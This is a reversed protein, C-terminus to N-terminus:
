GAHDRASPQYRALASDKPANASDGKAALGTTLYAWGSNFNADFRLKTSRAAVSDLIPAAALLSDHALLATGRNYAAVDADGRGCAALTAAAALAVVRAGARARPSCRTSFFAVSRPSCSCISVAAVSGARDLGRASRDQISRHRPPHDRRRTPRMPRSSYARRRSGGRRASDRSRVEDRSGRRERRAEADRAGNVVIPITSGATTGFGVTVLQIGAAKARTAEAIIDAQPEFAEGDSMLVIAKDADGRGLSLLLRRRIYRARLDLEGGRRRGDSRSQRSLSRARRRREHSADPHVSPGRLRDDRFPRRAVGRSAAAGGAEDERSAVAARRARDDLAFRRARARRRRWQAPGDGDRAGLATGRFRRRHAALATRLARPAGVGRRSALPALRAIM